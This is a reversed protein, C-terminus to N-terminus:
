NCSGIQRLYTQALTAVSTGQQQNVVQSLLETARRCDGMLHYVKGLKFAADPVKHHEPFYTIVQALAQRALEYEPDPKAAYVEGLWYYANPALAGDPFQTIVAQLQTIALEYQRSHILELAADYLKREDQGTGADEASQVEANIYPVVPAKM